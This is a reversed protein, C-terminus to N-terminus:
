LLPTSSGCSYVGVPAVSSAQFPQVSAVAPAYPRPSPSPLAACQSGRSVRMGDVVTGSVYYIERLKLGLALHALLNHQQESSFTLKGQLACVCMANCRGPRSSAARM